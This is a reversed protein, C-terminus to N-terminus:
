SVRELGKVRDFDTDFSAIRNIKRRGMLTVSVCDALSLKGDFRLHTMMAEALLGPDVFEIQCSDQFYEYLEHAPRGGKRSGVITVSEAIVLDSVVIDAPLSEFLQVARAHWQDASDVWGIFFSSDGFIM